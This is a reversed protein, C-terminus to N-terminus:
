IESCCCTNMPQQQEYVASKVNSSHAPGIGLLGHRRGIQDLYATACPSPHSVCHLMCFCCVLTAISKTPITGAAKDAGAVGDCRLLRTLCFCTQQVPLMICRDRSRMCICPVSLMGGVAAFAAESTTVPKIRFSKFALVLLQWFNIVFEHAPGMPPACLAQHSECGQQARSICVM